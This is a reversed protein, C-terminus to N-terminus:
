SDNIFFNMLEYNSYDTKDPLVEQYKIRMKTKLKELSEKIYEIGEPTLYLSMLANTIRHKKNNLNDHIIGNVLFTLIQEEKNYAAIKNKLDISKFSYFKQKSGLRIFCRQSGYFCLFISGHRFTIFKLNTKTNIVIKSIYKKNYTTDTTLHMKKNIVNKILLDNKLNKITM